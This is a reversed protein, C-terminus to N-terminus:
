SQEMIGAYLTILTGATPYDQSSTIKSTRFTKLKETLQEMEDGGIGLHELANSNIVVEVFIKAGLRLARLPQGTSLLSHQPSFM